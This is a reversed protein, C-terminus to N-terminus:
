LYTKLLNQYGLKGLLLYDSKPIYQLLTRIALDPFSLIYFCDKESLLKIKDLINKKISKESTKIKSDKIMQILIEKSSSKKAKTIKSNASEIIKAFDLIARNNKILKEYFSKKSFYKEFISQLILKRIENPHIEYDIYDEFLEEIEHSRKVISCEDYVSEELVLSNLDIKLNLHLKTMEDWKLETGSLRKDYTQRTIGMLTAMKIKTFNNKSRIEELNDIIVQNM